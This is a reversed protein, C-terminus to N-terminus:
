RAQSQLFTTIAKQVQSHKIYADAGEILNRINEQSADDM